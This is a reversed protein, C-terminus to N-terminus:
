TLESRIHMRPGRSQYIAQSRLKRYFSSGVKSLIEEGLFQLNAEPGWEKTQIWWPM